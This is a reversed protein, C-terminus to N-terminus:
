CDSCSGEVPLMPLEGLGDNLRGGGGGGGGEKGTGDDAGGEEERVAIGKKSVSLLM